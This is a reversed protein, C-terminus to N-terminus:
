EPIVEGASRTALFRIIPQSTYSLFRVSGDGMAFMAGGTHYSWFHDFNCADPPNNPARYLGAASGSPCPTGTGNDDNTGFFSGTNNSAGLCDYDWRVNPARSTDWWGWWGTPRSAPREGVLLTNSTGDTIELMRVRSRWYLIGDNGTRDTLATWRYLDTGSVGAYSSTLQNSFGKAAYGFQGYPDSPCAYLPVPKGLGNSNPKMTQYLPGQEVYPLIHTQWSAFVLAAPISPNFDASQQDGVAGLGPPFVRFADHHNHLALGMQKLNNTCQLRAAAERVKQVAPVLLAILIAIIAIVVLLEILTFARRNSVWKM